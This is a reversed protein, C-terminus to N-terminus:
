WCFYACPLWSLGLFVWGIGWVVAPVFICRKYTAVCGLAKAPPVKPGPPPQPPRAAAAGGGGGVEASRAPAVVAVVAAALAATANARASAFTAANGGGGDCEYYRALCGRTTVIGPIWFGMGLM